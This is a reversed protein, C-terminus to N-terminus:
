RTVDKKTKPTAEMAVVLERARESAAAGAIRGLTRWRRTVFHTGASDECLSGVMAPFREWTFAPGRYEPHDHFRTFMDKAWSRGWERALAPTEAPHQSM